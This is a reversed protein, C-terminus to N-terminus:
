LGLRRRLRELDEALWDELPEVLLNPAREGLRVGARLNGVIRRAQHPRVLLVLLLQLGFLMWAGRIYRQGLVFGTVGLEGVLSTDQGLLVHLLDHTAIYRAPAALRLLEDDTFAASFRIPALKEADCFEAYVRGFSGPPLRRLSDPDLRPRLVLVGRAAISAHIRATTEASMRLGLLDSQLLAVDGLRSPDRRAVRLRRLTALWTRRKRATRGTM